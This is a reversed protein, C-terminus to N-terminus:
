NGYNFINRPGAKMKGMKKRVPM